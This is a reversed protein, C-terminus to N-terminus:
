QIETRRDNKVIGEKKIKNAIVLAFATLDIPKDTQVLEVFCKRQQKNM